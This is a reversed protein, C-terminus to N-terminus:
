VTVKTLANSESLVFNAERDFNDIYTDLETIKSDIGIPDLLIAKRNERFPGSINEVEDPSTKTTSRGFSGVLLAQLDNETQSNHLELSRRTSERQSKLRDLLNKFHPLSQRREIVDAVTYTDKGIKVNTTANSLIIASKIKNYRGILDTISQYEAKSNLTYLEQNISRSNTKTVLVTFSSNKLEKIL